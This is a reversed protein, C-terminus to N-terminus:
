VGDPPISVWSGITTVYDGYKELMLAQHQNYNLANDVTWTDFWAYEWPDSTRHQKIAEPIVWTEIDAIILNFRNDRPCHPWVLDIVDQSNEIITVSTVDPNDILPQHCFGLGLGGILIDGTANEFLTAHENYEAESDQMIPMPCGEKLLVTYNSHNENKMDLYVQWNKDTTENTYHAVEFDGSVGAPIDVQIRTM